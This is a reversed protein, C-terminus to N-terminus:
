DDAQTAKEKEWLWRGHDRGPGGEGATVLGDGPRGPVGDEPRRDGRREGLAELLRYDPHAAEPTGLAHEPLGGADVRCSDAVGAAVRRVWGVLLDARAAGAVGLRHEDAEVRPLRAVLLDEPEEPLVVVRRLAHALAVVDARLVARRDVRGRVRLAGGRLRRALRELRLEGARAVALDRGLDGLGAREVVRLRVVLLVERLVRVAVATQPTGTDGTRNTYSTRRRLRGGPCRLRTLGAM